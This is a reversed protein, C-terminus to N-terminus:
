QVCTNETSQLSSVAEDLYMRADVLIQMYKKKNNSSAGTEDVLEADLDGEGTVFVDQKSRLKRTM